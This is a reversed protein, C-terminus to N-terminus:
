CPTAGSFGAKMESRQVVATKGTFKPTLAIPLVGQQAYHCLGVSIDDVDVRISRPDCLQFLENCGESPFNLGTLARM